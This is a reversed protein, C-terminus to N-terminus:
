GITALSDSVASFVLTRSNEVWECSNVGGVGRRVFNHLGRLAVASHRVCGERGWGWADLTRGRVQQPLPPAQHAM